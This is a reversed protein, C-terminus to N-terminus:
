GERHREEETSGAYQITTGRCELFRALAHFESNMSRRVSASLPAFPRVEVQLRDAESRHNWTGIIEGDVLLVPSIWGQPRYVKGHHHPPVLHQREHHGLIYSDFYPLIRLTRRETPVRQLVPLDKRLIWATGGDVEVPALENTLRTWIDQADSHRMQTWAVFDRPQAPGFSRLYIRLLEEEARAVPIDRYHPIWADARVFTSVNGSGPGACVVGRAGTLHLLFNVPLFLDRTRVWPIRRENGWGAGSARDVVRGGLRRALQHGLETQTRPEDLCALLGELTEELAAPPVNRRLAWRVEKEARAASGRVFVSLERAPLLFVTRRMAWARVLTRDKWLAREIDEQRLQAIRAWISISAAPALQAQAGGMASVVSTLERRLGRRALHHRQLRFSHVAERTVRTGQVRQRPKGGM